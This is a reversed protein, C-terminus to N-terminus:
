HLFMCVVCMGLLFGIYVQWPSHKKLYLRCSALLGALVFSLMLGGHAFGFYELILLVGCLSGMGIMHLSIKWKLTIIMVLSLLIVLILFLRQAMETYALLRLLWFGLFALIIIVLLMWVRDQRDELSLNRILHFHWLLPLTLLPLILLMVFAILYCYWKVLPPTYSFGIHTTYILVLVYLPMLLPHLLISIIKAFFQIKSNKM